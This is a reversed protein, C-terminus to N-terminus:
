FKKMAKINLESRPFIDPLDLRLKKNNKGKSTWYQTWPTPLFIKEIHIVDLNHLLILDKWYSLQWFVRRTDITIFGMIILCIELFMSTVGVILLKGSDYYDIHEKIQEWSLYPHTGCVVRKHRFLTKNRQYPHTLPLFQRHCDFCCTKRGHKLQFADIMGLYYSCSLREHTTWVSLMGYAPFDSITWMLYSADYFKNKNFLWINRSRNVM